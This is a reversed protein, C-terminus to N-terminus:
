RRHCLRGLLEARAGGRVFEQLFPMTGNEMLPDIISFTAGDIGILVTPNMFNKEEKM